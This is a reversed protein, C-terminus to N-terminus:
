SLWTRAPATSRCSLADPYDAWTHPRSQGLGATSLTWARGQPPGLMGKWQKCLALAETAPTGPRWWGAAARGVGVGWLRMEPRHWPLLSHWARAALPAGSLPGLSLSLLPTRCACVLLGETGRAAALGSCGHAPTPAVFLIPERLWTPLPCAPRPGNVSVWWRM